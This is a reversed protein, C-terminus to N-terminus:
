PTRDASDRSAYTYFKFGAAKVTKSNNANLAWFNLPDRSWPWAWKLSQECFIKKTINLPLEDGSYQVTTYNELASCDYTCSKLFRTKLTEEFHLLSITMRFSTNHLVIPKM